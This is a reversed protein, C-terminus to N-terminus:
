RGFVKKETKKSGFQFSKYVAKRTFVPKLIMTGVDAVATITIM